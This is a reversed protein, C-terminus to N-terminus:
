CHERIYEEAAKALFASRSMHHAQAFQDVMKMVGTNFTITYPSTKAEPIIVPIAIYINSEDPDAQKITDIDSPEPLEIGDELMGEIHLRLAKAAM